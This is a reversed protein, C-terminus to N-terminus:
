RNRRDSFKNAYYQRKMEYMKQDSKKILEPMTLEPYESAAAYGYSVHLKKTQEGHWAEVKKEFEALILKIEYSEASIIIVFEDGGIRFTKGLLGFSERIVEAAGIIIEDGADHGLSDNILKLGNLDISIAILSPDLKVGDYEKLMLEYSNRNNLGSLSDIQSLKKLQEENKKEEEIVQVTFLVDTPYDNEDVRITIFSIRCWGNYNGVFETSIQTKGKMRMPLSQLNIFNLVHELFPPTCRDKMANIFSMQANNSIEYRMVGEVSKISRLTNTKLNIQHVSLYIKSMSQLVEMEERIVKNGKIEIRRKKFALHSYFFAFILIFVLVSLSFYIIALPHALMMEQLKKSDSKQYDELALELIDYTFYKSRLNQIFYPDKIQIKSVTSDLLQCVEQNNVSSILYFESFGVLQIIKINEQNVVENELACMIDVEGNQLAENRESVSNYLKVHSHLQKNRLWKLLYDFLISNAQVGIKKDKIISIDYYSTDSNDNKTYLYFSAVGMPDSPYFYDLAREESYAVGPLLDIEGNQLKTLLTNWDGEVYNIKTNSFQSFKSLYDIIYGNDPKNNKDYNTFVNSECLGVKLTRAFLLTSSFILFTILFVRKM